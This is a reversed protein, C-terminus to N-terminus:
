KGVLTTGLLAQSAPVADIRDAVSFAREGLYVVYGHDIVGDDLALRLHRSDRPEIAVGAKFEIGIRRTGRDILLDIEVGTATRFFYFQSGPRRLREYTAIQEIMFGEFSRGRAPSVHLADAGHIGLLEHLLGSDRLYVKPTKVLRKGLNAHWPPLRRLVFYAELLDLARQVAHYSYGLARGLESANLLGGQMNALLTVLRRMELATLTLRHRAVDREIFTKLYNERWASAAAADRALFADPYAGKLWLAALTAGRRSEIERLTFPTLELIGVRGALSESIGRLLEPSVSGLLFWSGKKSRSEDILSRLVPFLAPLTQAEDLIVPTRLERLGYEVDAAFLQMDSPRELDLYAADLYHRVLTTKGCQRPGLLLVAPFEQALARLPAEAERRIM